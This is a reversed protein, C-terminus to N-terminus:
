NCLNNIIKLQRKGVSVNGLQYNYEISFQTQLYSLINLLLRMSLLVKIVFFLVSYTKERDM